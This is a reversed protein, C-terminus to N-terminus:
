FPLESLFLWVSTGMPFKGSSCNTEKTMFVMSHVWIILRSIAFRYSILYRLYQVALKVSRVCGRQVILKFLKKHRALATARQVVNKVRYNFTVETKYIARTITARTNWFIPSTVLKITSFLLVFNLQHLHFLQSCYSFIWRYKWENSSIGKTRRM